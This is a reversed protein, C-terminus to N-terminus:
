QTPYGDGFRTYNTDVFMSDFVSLNRTNFNILLVRPLNTRIRPLAENNGPLQEQVLAPSPFKISERSGSELPLRTNFISIM